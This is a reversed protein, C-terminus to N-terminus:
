SRRACSVKDGLADNTAQTSIQLVGQSGANQMKWLDTVLSADENPFGLCISRTAASTSQADAELLDCAEDWLARCADGESKPKRPDITYPVSQNVAVDLNRAQGEFFWEM